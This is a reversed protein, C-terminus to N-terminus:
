CIDSRRVGRERLAEVRERVQSIDRVPQDERKYTMASREMLLNHFFAQRKKIEKLLHRKEECFTMEDNYVIRLDTSSIMCGRWGDGDMRSLDDGDDTQMSIISGSIGGDSTRSDADDLSAKDIEAKKGGGVSQADFSEAKPILIRSGYEKEKGLDDGDGDGDDDGDGDGIESGSKDSDLASSSKSQVIRRESGTEQRPLQREFAISSHRAHHLLQVPGKSGGSGNIADFRLKRRSPSSPVSLDHTSIIGQSSSSTRRFPYKQPSSFLAERRRSRIDPSTQPHHPKDDSIHSFSPSIHIDSKGLAGGHTAVTQQQLIRLPYKYLQDVCHVILSNGEVPPLVSESLVSRLCFRELKSFDVEFTGWLVSESVADQRAWLELEVNTLFGFKELVSRPLVGWTPNFTRISTWESVYVREKRKDPLVHFLAFQLKQPEKLGLNRAAFRSVEGLTHKYKASSPVQSTM